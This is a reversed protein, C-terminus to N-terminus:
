ESGVGLGKETHAFLVFLVGSILEIHLVTISILISHRNFSQIFNIYVQPCAFHSLLLFASAVLDSSSFESGLGLFHFSLFLGWLSGESRWMRTLWVFAWM